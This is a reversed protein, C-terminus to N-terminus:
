EGTEQENVKRYYEELKEHCGIFPSKLNPDFQTGMGDCMVEYAKDFSMPEKYCRKSVLADYVDAVAMIRAELPIMTGVLGEPYGKGDWREHHYRAVNYASKVFHEEEVGDLLIMVMEGSKTSHTKMIQFEEDTLRSPKCLIYSDITVKGLDHMPAARVIDQALTGDVPIKGQRIIEDVIIHITDSTRKVHGGTNNDRNEIINAMGLVIKRQINCINATKERVEANLTENYSTMIDLTRQEETADRIDFLYGQSRGDRRFSFSSIECACTMDGHTFKTTTVGDREYAVILGNLVSSPRYGEELKADVNQMKLEPLFELAKGNCSLFRHYKDLAVYGKNGFYKQQRSILNSIDYLHLHEFDFAIILDGVVYLYPLLSFSVDMFAELGYIVLGSICLVAYITMNRRSFTGKRAFGAIVCGILAIMILGLYILHVVKLPGSTMKTVTGASTRYLTMTKYYLDNDFCKWILVMYAAALSYAVVKIWAKLRIGMTYLMSFIVVTLTVTSDLYIYCFCLKAGEPTTVRTKLYYGLIVLPILIVMTWYYSNTNEYNKSAMYIIVFISILLCIGFGLTAM